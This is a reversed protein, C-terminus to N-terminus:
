GSLTGEGYEAWNIDNLGSVKQFVQNQDTVSRNSIAFDNIAGNTSNDAEEAIPTTWQHVQPNIQKLVQQTFDIRDSEPIKQALFKIFDVYREGFDKSYHGVMMSAIPGVYKLLVSVILNYVKNHQAMQEVNISRNASQKQMYPILVSENKVTEHRVLYRRYSRSLLQSLEKAGQFRRAPQKFLARAMVHVFERPIWQSLIETLIDQDLERLEFGRPPMAKSRDQHTRAEQTQIIMEYIILAASYLDSVPAIAKRHLQEPSMYALTGFLAGGSSPDVVIEKEVPTLSRDLKNVAIGFDSLKIQKNSLVHINGPKIDRHVIGRKHLYSIAALLQQGMLIADELKFQKSREIYDKLEWSELYDMVLCPLDNYEFYHKISIIGPHKCQHVIEYEHLLQQKLKKIDVKSLYKKCVTKIAFKQQSHQDKVLYVEGISGSGLYRVVTFQGLRQGVYFNQEQNM